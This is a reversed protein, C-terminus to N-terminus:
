KPTPATSARPPPRLTTAEGGRWVCVVWTPNGSAGRGIGTSARLMATSPRVQAHETHNLHQPSSTTTTHTDVVPHQPRLATRPSPVPRPEHDGLARGRRGAALYPRKDARGGDQRDEVGEKHCEDERM